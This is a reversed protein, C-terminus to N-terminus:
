LVRVQNNDQGSSLWSDVDKALLPKSYIFGQIISGNLSKIVSLEEKTEIGEFINRMGLSKSMTVIATVISKLNKNSNINRVLSKDIKIVDIPLRALYNMSTYGTGFDDLAIACGMAHLENLFSKTKEFDNILLSETIEFEIQSPNIGAKSIENKVFEIFKYNNFQLVSLNIAYILNSEPRIRIFEIVEKIVWEGVSYILGTEELLPVFQVPSIEGCKKNSWRLLSEFGTTKGTLCDVQPQYVVHFENNHLASHLENELVLRNRLKNSMSEDYFQLQNGGSKKAKYMATDANRLLVASTDGDNPYISIGISAGVHIKHSQIEFTETLYSIIKKAVHVAEDTSELRELVVVFEDGGNRSVTDRSRLIKHLRTSVERILLDGISHGLSDNINKFRDLDLFLIAMSQDERSSTKISQDIRDILLNKNPLGTLEDHYALYQLSKEAEEKKFIVSELHTNANILEKTREVVKKELNQKSHELEFQVEERVNIEHNLDDILQLESILRHNFRASNVIMLAAYIVFSGAIQVNYESNMNAFVYFIALSQPIMYALYAPMWASLTAISAAILGFNVLIVLNRLSEDDYSLQMYVFAGWLVGIFLTFIVHTHLYVYINSGLNNLYRNSLFIRVVSLLIIALGLILADGQQPSNYLFVYMLCACFINALGGSLTARFLPEVQKELFSSDALHINKFM